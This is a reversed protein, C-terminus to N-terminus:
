LGMAQCLDAVGTETDHLLNLCVRPALALREWAASDIAPVMENPDDALDLAHAMADAAHVIDALSPGGGAAAAPSAHHSAIAQVVEPPFKWQAAVQAAVELHDIGLMESEISALEADEAHSCTIAADMEAPFHAALALRGIDHLLGATFAWDEDSGLARALGRAALAVALAHRWFGSFSFHPCSRADFQQSVTAVTLVSCLTRRGLLHVADRISGVRGPVGYFASNALRLTRAVLAQDRGILDSCREASAEDDRLVALAELAAQPLAPLERVRLRLQERDIPGHLGRAPLAVPAAATRLAGVTRAAAGPDARHRQVLHQLPHIRGDRRAARFLYVIRADSAAVAETSASSGMPTTNM